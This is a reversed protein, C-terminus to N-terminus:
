KYNGSFVNYKKFDWNNIPQKTTNKPDNNIINLQGGYLFNLLLGGLDPTNQTHNIQDNQGSFGNNAFLPNPQHNQKQFQSINKKEFAKQEHDIPISLISNTNQNSPFQIPMNSKRLFDDKSSTSSTTTIPRKNIANYALSLDRNSNEAMFGKDYPKSSINLKQKLDNPLNSKRLIEIEKDINMDVQNYVEIPNMCNQSVNNNGQTFNNNAYQNDNLMYNFQDNHFLKNAGHQNNVQIGSNNNLHQSLLQKKLAINELALKELDTITNDHKIPIKVNSLINNKTSANKFDKFNEIISNYENLNKIDELVMSEQM